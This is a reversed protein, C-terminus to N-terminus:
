FSCAFTFAGTRFSTPSLALQTGHGLDAVMLSRGTIFTLQLSAAINLKKNTVADIVPKIDYTRVVSKPSPLTALIWYSHHAVLAEDTEVRYAPHTIDDSAALLSALARPASLTGEAKAHRATMSGALAAVVSLAAALSRRTM